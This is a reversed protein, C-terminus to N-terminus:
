PESARDIELGPKIEARPSSFLEKSLENKALDRAHRARRARFSVVAPRLILYGIVAFLAGLVVSGLLLPAATTLMKTWSLLSQLDHRGHLRLKPAFRHPHSLLWFGIQYELRLLLPTFPLVLDHLTVGIVAAIKNARFLWALLVSLLTKLGFLPIFGLFTGLSFGLAISHPTDTIAHLRGVHTRIWERLNM